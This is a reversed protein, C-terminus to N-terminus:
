HQQRHGPKQLMIRGASELRQDAAAAEVVDRRFVDDSVTDSVPVPALTGATLLRRPVQMHREQSQRTHDTGLDM